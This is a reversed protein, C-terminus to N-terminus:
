SATLATLVEGSGEIRNSAENVGSSRRCHVKLVEM